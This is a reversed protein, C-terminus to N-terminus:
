KKFIKNWYSGGQFPQNITGVVWIGMNISKTLAPTKNSPGKERHTDKLVVIKFFVSSRSSKVVRKIQIWSFLKGFELRIVDIPFEYFLSHSHLSFVLNKHRDLKKNELHLSKLKRFKMFFDGFKVFVIKLPAQGHCELDSIRLIVPFLPKFNQFNIKHTILFVTSLNELIYAFYLFKFLLLNPFPRNVCDTPAIEECIM